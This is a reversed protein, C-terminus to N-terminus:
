LTEGARDLSNEPLARTTAGPTSMKDPEADAAASDTAKGGIVHVHLQSGLTRAFIFMTEGREFEFEGLARTEGGVAALVLGHRGPAVFIRAAQWTNPLTQWTRLDARETALSYVTGALFGLLPNKKELEKTLAFKLVSRIASKTALWAIRDELNQKTVNYVDEIVDTRVRTSSGEISFELAQVYQPRSELRPVSWQLVGDPTPITLTFPEKYPGAGVGGIVIVSAAGDPRKSDDGFRAQLKEYDDSYGLQRSLRLAGRGALQVGVQKGLMRQYDIYANDPQGQMEYMVASLFHGLGGAAYEKEYLAEESELVRNALRAEVGADELSGQGLYALGMFAHLMVREFGEGRYSAMSENVAWTLMSEGAATPSILARDELEKVTGHAAEFHAVAAAWDGATFAVSGAEVGGLFESGTTQPDAYMRAADALHGAEFTSYAEATREPYSACSCLGLTLGLLM